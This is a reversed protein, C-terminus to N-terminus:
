LKRITYILVAVLLISTSIAFAWKAALVTAEIVEIETTPNM